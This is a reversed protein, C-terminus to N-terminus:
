IGTSKNSNSLSSAILSAHYEKVTRIGEFQIAGSNYELVDEMLFLYQPPWYIGFNIKWSGDSSKQHQKIREETNKYVQWPMIVFIGSGGEPVALQTERVFGMQNHFQNLEKLSPRPRYYMKSEYCQVLLVPIM